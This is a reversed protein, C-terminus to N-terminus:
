NSSIANHYLSLVMRIFDPDPENAASIDDSGNNRADIAAESLWLDSHGCREPMDLVTLSINDDSLELYSSLRCSAPIIKDDSGEIVAIPIDADAMCVSARLGGESGFTLANGINLFPYEIDALLGVHDRASERMLQVPNDFASIIVAAKVRPDDVCTATAYGGASHGYLLIPLDSFRDDEATYHLAARLDLAPQSLGVKGSGESEGVGTADYCLVGYGNDVFTKMESLHSAGSDGFGAAIVVLAAPNDPAYYYGSLTNGGSTFEVKQYPYGEDAMQTYSYSFDSLEDSRPFATHFFVVTVIMSIVSFSLIFILLAVLVRKVYKKPKSHLQM